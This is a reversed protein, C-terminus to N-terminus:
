KRVIRADARLQGELSTAYGALRRQRLNNAVAERDVDANAAKTRNCMMLLVLTEGNNRTVVASTEGADLKSLEIAIDQPIEGPSQTKRELVEVPQGKAVGYLDDCVDIQATVNAATQLAAESHGGAIYYSAYEISAIEAQPADTERIDRLQFLAVANPIPLPATVEGPSLALLLPRLSAPLQSVPTWELRGGRGRSATASYKRAFASFQEASGSQSIQEALSQVQAARQPPAPIIIESLLVEIGSTGAEAALARDIEAETIQVRSGYRARIYDRWAVGNLVFDRFTEEAVGAQGLAKVFEETSLDARSAFEALAARSADASVRLGADRTAELRLREDILADVVTDQSAGAANLVKMFLLRQQVEFQTIAAGNVTAVPAFLNQAALPAAALVVGALAMTKLRTFPTVILQWM